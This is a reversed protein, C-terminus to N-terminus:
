TMPELESLVVEFTIDAVKSLMYTVGCYREMSLTVAKNIKNEDLNYGSVEYTLHIKHYHKPHEETMEASINIDLDEYEVRMKKFLAVVDMGTCGGLAALLVPKPRPGQELGGFESDADMRFSHGGINADFAMQGVSKCKMNHTEM